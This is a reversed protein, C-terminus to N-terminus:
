GLSILRVDGYILVAGRKTLSKPDFSHCSVPEGLQPNEHNKKPGVMGDNGTMRCNWATCPVLFNACLSDRTHTRTLFSHSTSWLMHESANLKRPVSRRWISYRMEWFDLKDRRYVANNRTGLVCEEAPSVHVRIIKFFSSYQLM